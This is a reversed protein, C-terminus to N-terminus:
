GGGGGGNTVAGGAGTNHRFLSSRLSLSLSLSLPVSLDGSDSRRRTLACRLLSRRSRDRQRLTRKLPTLHLTPGHPPQSFQSYGDSPLISHTSISRPAIRRSFNLARGLLFKESDTVRRIEGKALNSRSSVFSRNIV